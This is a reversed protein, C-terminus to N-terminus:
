AKTAYALQQAGLLLWHLKPELPRLFALSKPFFVIFELEARSLGGAALLRKLAWPWLLIADDDFECAAVARRTLPNFPNHEFVIVRGGSRLKGIVSRMVDLREAPPVHHLVGSLVATQFYQAPVSDLQEHLQASPARKRAVELSRESPDFGHVETFRGELVELLNGIGCGFDLLPQDKAVGLRELCQLKYEAFYRTSEGSASVSAQHLDDYAQAYDDFRAATGSATVGRPKMSFITAYPGSRHRSM